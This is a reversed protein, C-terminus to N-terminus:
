SSVALHKTETEAFLLKDIVSYRQWERLPRKRYDTVVTRVEVGIVVGRLATASARDPRIRVDM